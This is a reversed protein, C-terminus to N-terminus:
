TEEKKYCHLLQDLDGVLLFLPACAELHCEFGMFFADCFDENEDDARGLDFEHFWWQKVKVTEWKAPHESRLRM